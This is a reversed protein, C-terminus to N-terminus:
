DGGWDRGQGGAAPISAGTVPFPGSQFSFDAPDPTWIGSAVAAGGLLSTSLLFGKGIWFFPQSILISGPKTNRNRQEGRKAPYRCVRKERGKGEHNTKWPYEPTPHTHHQAWLFGLLELGWTKGTGAREKEQTTVYDRFQYSFCFYFYSCIFLIKRVTLGLLRM